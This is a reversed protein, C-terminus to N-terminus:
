SHNCFSFRPNGLEEAHSALGMTGEPQPPVAGDENDRPGAILCCQAKECHLLMVEPPAGQVRDWLYPAYRRHTKAALDLLSARLSAREDQAALSLSIAALGWRGSPNPRFPM